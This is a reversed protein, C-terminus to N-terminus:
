KVKLFIRALQMVSPHPMVNLVSFFQYLEASQSKEVRLAELAKFLEAELLSLKIPYHWNPHKCHTSLPM